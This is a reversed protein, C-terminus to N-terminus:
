KASTSQVWRLLAKKANGQCKKVVKRKMPPSGTKSSTISEVSSNSNSLAQLAPLNSTLEEIQIFFIVVHRAKLSFCAFVFANKRCDEAPENNRGRPDSLLKGPFLSNCDM